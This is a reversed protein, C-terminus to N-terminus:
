KALKSILTNEYNLCFLASASPPQSRTRVAISRSDLPLSGDAVSLLLPTLLM